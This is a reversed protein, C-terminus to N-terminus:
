RRLRGIMDRCRAGGCFLVDWLVFVVFLGAALVVVGLWGKM